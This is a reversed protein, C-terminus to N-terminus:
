IILKKLVKKTPVDVVISPYVFITSLALPNVVVIKCIVHTM